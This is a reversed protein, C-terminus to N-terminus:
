PPSFRVVHIDCDYLPKGEHTTVPEGTTCFIRDTLHNGGMVLTGADFTWARWSLDCLDVGPLAQIAAPHLGPATLLREGLENGDADIWRAFLTGGGASCRVEGLGAPNFGPLTGGIAYGGEPLRHVAELDRDGPLAHNWGALGAGEFSWRGVLLAGDDGKWAVELEGAVPDVHLVRPAATGPIAELRLAHSVQWGLGDHRFRVWAWVPPDDTVPDLWLLFSVDPPAPSVAPEWAALLPTVVPSFGHAVGGIEFSAAAPGEQPDGGMPDVLATQLAGDELFSFALRGDDLVQWTWIPEVVTDELLRISATLSGEADRRDLWLDYGIGGPVRRVLGVAGDPLAIARLVVGDGEPQGLLRTPGNGDIVSLFERDCAPDAYSGVLEEVAGCNDYYYETIPIIRPCSPAPQYGSFAGRVNGSIWIRGRAADYGLIPRSVGPSQSVLRFPGCTEPQLTVCDGALYRGGLFGLDQCTQSGTEYLEGYEPQLIGDGCRECLNDQIRCRSTCTLPGGHHGLTECTQGAFDYGDCEEYAPTVVLDGCKGFPECPTDDIRCLPTCRRKGSGNYGLSSCSKSYIPAFSDQDCDEGNEVKGNGCVPSDECAGLIALLAMTWITGRMTTRARM